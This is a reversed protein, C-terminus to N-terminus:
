VVSKNLLSTVMKQYFVDFPMSQGLDDAYPVDDMYYHFCIYSIDRSAVHEPSLDLTSCCSLVFNKM